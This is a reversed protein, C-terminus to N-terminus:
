FIILKALLFPKPETILLVASLHLFAIKFDNVAVFGLKRLENCFM